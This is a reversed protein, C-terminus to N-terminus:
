NSRAPASVLSITAANPSLLGNNINLRSDATSLNIAPSTTFVGVSAMSVLSGNGLNFSSSTGLLYVSNVNLAAGDLVDLHNGAGGGTITLSNGTSSYYYQGGVAFPYTTSINLTSGPGTVVVSNNNAGTSQGIGLTQTTMTGIFTSSAGNQVTFSNNSAGADVGVAFVTNSDANVVISSGPDSVVVSNGSAITGTGGSSASQVHGVYLRQALLTGGGSVTLTNNDGASGCYFAMDVVPSTLNMISGAGTVTLSNGNAGPEFGIDANNTGNGKDITISAGDAITASNNSGYQGVYFNNSGGSNLNINSINSGIGTVLLTNGNSTPTTGMNLSQINVLSGGNKIVLNQSITGTGLSFPNAVNKTGLAGTLGVALVADDVVINPSNELLTGSNGYNAAEALQLTGGNVTTTGTYANTAALVLMGAGSKTLSTGANDLIPTAITLVDSPSDSRVVLEGGPAPDQIGNGGSIVSAM